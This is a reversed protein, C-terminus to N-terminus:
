TKNNHEVTIVLKGQHHGEELYRFAEAVESLPYRRDIVPVVKGAEFLEGIFVMDEKKNPKYGVIGMKKSGFMSILPGLFMAQLIAGKSGGVMVYIGKPSLARKCHFISHHAAIDLILDYHKGSKTFDEQTYDIVHDAGISRVMDLKRTSDVGTVEAGFSKAIQVAFTGMGGGAGNILVKQGPQIQRKKRLGQLAVIASQPITAAEEFTM